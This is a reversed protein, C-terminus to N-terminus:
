DELWEIEKIMQELEGQVREDENDKLLLYLSLKDVYNDNCLIDPDYRWVEITNNGYHKNTKIKLEKLGKKYVAYYERGEDNLMTYHSLANINSLCMTKPSLTEDTYIIQQAPNQLYQQAKGWLAKGQYNFRIHKEKGGELSILDFDVLSRMARNITMYIQSFEETLKTATYGKLTKKQLHYLLILQAIPTLFPAEKRPVDSTKQVQIMLTPIYMQKGPVIFNVRKKILRGINYSEIKEFMFVVPLGTKQSVLSMQKALQDPAFTNEDAKAVMLCVDKEAISAQYINYSATIYLPLGSLTQKELQCVILEEGLIDYIYKKLDEMNAIITLKCM